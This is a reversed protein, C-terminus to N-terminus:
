RNEEVSWGIPRIDGTLPVDRIQWDHTSMISIGRRSSEGVCDRFKEGTAYAVFLGDPSWYIAPEDCSGYPLENSIALVTFDGGGNLKSLLAPGPATRGNQLRMTFSAVFDRNPSWSRRTRLGYIEGSNISTFTSTDVILFGGALSWSTDLTDSKSYGIFLEDGAQSWTYSYGYDIISSDPSEPFITVPEVRSGDVATIFVYDPEAEPVASCGNEFAIFNGQPSWNLACLSKVTYHENAFFNRERFDVVIQQDNTKLDIVVIDWYEDIPSCEGVAGGCFPRSTFAIKEGDRSWAPYLDISEGETLARTLDNGLDYLWLNVGQGGASNREFLLKDGDPSWVVSYDSVFAWDNEVDFHGANAIQTIVEGTFLNIVTLTHKPRDSGDDEWPTLLAIHQGDPSLWYVNKRSFEILKKLQTGEQDVSYIEYMSEPANIRKEILLVSQSSEESTSCAGFILVLLVHIALWDSIYQHKKPSM